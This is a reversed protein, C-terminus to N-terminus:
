CRYRHILNAIFIIIINYLYIYLYNASTEGCSKYFLLIGIKKKKNNNKKLSIHM